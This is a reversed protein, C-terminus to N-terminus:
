GMRASTWYQGLLSSFSMLDAKSSSLCEKRGGTSSRRFNTPGPVRCDGLGESNGAQGAPEKSTKFTRAHRM